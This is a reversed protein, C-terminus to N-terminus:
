SEPLRVRFARRIRDRLGPLAVVTPYVDLPVVLLRLPATAVVDALRPYGFGGGWDQAALEGFFDGPGLRRVIRTDVFVEVTGDLIVYFDRDAGWRRVVHEGPEAHKEYCAGALFELASEDVGAFAELTALEAPDPHPYGSWTVTPSATRDLVPHARIQEQVEDDAPVPVDHAELWSLVGLVDRPGSTHNLVCLRIAYRGQLRTSSVLGYGSEDLAHVLAANMADLRAEDDVGPFRRRFCVIGLHAPLLLELQDSAEIHHQAALALDLARDITARFADLGFYRISTWIKFARAMRSLQMGSDAFNVEGTAVMADKLYDPTMEFARRLRVGDRVLVAGCEFPQYLWKHPDLTVSDAREIGALASRGRETLAAFGGYAADVHMWIGHKACIDAIAALPDVSGSNTAGAAASVFIPRRGVAVDAEIAGVLADARMAYDNDVPIVRLQDPRFGLIRGARALSSHAQDSVYAVIDDTMAGVAHERAAALATMNAASGGSVLVGSTSDPLGLWDAFWRLVVLEIQSPGASEMWAGCYVNVAAALFDGLASPWTGNSPIFAFYRRHEGRSMFPLVDDRLRRLITDFDEPGDPPAAPIREAMERPTARVLAPPDPATLHDVLFDVMAYGHRRMKDPDVALPDHDMDM